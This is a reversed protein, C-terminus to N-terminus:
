YLVVEDISWALRRCVYSCNTIFPEILESMKEYDTRLSSVLVPYPDSCGPDTKMTFYKKNEVVAEFSEETYDYHPIRSHIYEVLFNATYNEAEEKTNFVAPSDNESWDGGRPKYDDTFRTVTVVWVTAANHGTKQIKHKICDSTTDSSSRKRSMNSLCAKICCALAIMLNCLFTDVSQIALPLRIFLVQIQRM